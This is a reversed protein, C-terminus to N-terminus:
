AKTCVFGAQAYSRWILEVLSFGARRLVELHESVRIPFYKTGERAILARAGADDHGQRRLWMLWRERVMAQAADSEARVNEFVVFAGGPALREFCRAVARERADSNGYHHCQIATIVDFPGVDPLDQSPAHLFREPPLHPNRTRAIALMEQSPDALTFQASCRAKALEVLKGPGCGTDLWFRPALRAALGTEIAQALIEEHFPVTRLVEREYDSAAHPTTNDTGDRNM